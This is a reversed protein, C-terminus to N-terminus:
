TQGRKPPCWQLIDTNCGRDVPVPWPLSRSSWNSVMLRWSKEVRPASTQHQAPSPSPPTPTPNNHKRITTQMFSNNSFPAINEFVRIRNNSTKSPIKSFSETTRWPKSPSELPIQTCSISVDLHKAPNRCCWQCTPLNTWSTSVESNFMM